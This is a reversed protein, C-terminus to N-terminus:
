STPSPGAEVQRRSAWIASDVLRAQVKATGGDVSVVNRTHRTRNVVRRNESLLCRRGRIALSKRRAPSSNRAALSRGRFQVLISNLALLEAQAPTGCATPAPGKGALGVPPVPQPAAADPAAAIV